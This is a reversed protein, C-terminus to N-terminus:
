ALLRGDLKVESLVRDADLLYRYWKVTVTRPGTDVRGLKIAEYIDDVAEHPTHRPTFGLVDRIRVFSVNYDRHDPDSPTLDVRVPFPLRERVMYAVTLIRYNQADSGVNFVRGGVLAPDAGLVLAFAEVADLVHVLPRWQTGGGLVNLVGREVANLTMLNIVLDFRMRKSLGYVTSQRLATVAFDPSSLELVAKEAALNARAYESVPRPPSDEDLVGEGRGYVSCSSALVYRRVGARRATAAVHARGHFNIDQTLTPDLDGAPDNSLAALDCVADVGAFHEVRCSRVDERVLTFGPHDVTDGLLGTGFFYRDMGIVRHGDALLRDVLATGIYGGSGTVLVTAM